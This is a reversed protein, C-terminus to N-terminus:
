VFSDPLTEYHSINSRIEPEDVHCSVALNSPAPGGGVQSGRLQLLGPGGRTNRQLRYCCLRQKIITQPQRLYGRPSPRTSRPSRSVEFFHARLLFRELAVFFIFVTLVALPPFSHTTVEITHFPTRRHTALICPKCFLDHGFCDTCRYDPHPASCEGCPTKTYAGRGELRLMEDLAVRRSYETWQRM